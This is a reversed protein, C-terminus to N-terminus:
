LDTENTKHNKVKGITKQKIKWFKCVGIVNELIDLKKAELFLFFSWFHMWILM